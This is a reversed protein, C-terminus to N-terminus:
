LARLKRLYYISGAVVLVVVAWFALYGYEWHLEPLVDFNMGYIGCMFTLPLFIVSMVTLRNMIRNTRHGVISMHLNLSEALIERDVLLDQLVREVTGVMNALYPQTAESVYISRRTSLEGLVARAPLLVKRFHLLGAGVESVRQFVQDDAERVLETQVLEVREAFRKQVEHYSELLHDWLEYVLFSPSKAHQQFDARYSARVAALFEPEGRHLTVLVNEGIAVDVRSLVLGSGELQCATLVLHLCSEYRSLQTGPAGGLARDVLEAPCLALERMRERTAEEDLAEVDIWVFKGAKVAAAVDAPAIERDIKTAFDMEIARLRCSSDSNV